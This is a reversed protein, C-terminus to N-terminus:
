IYYSVINFEKVDGMDELIADIADRVNELSEKENAGDAAVGQLEPCTAVIRGNEDQELFVRYTFGFNLSSSPTFEFSNIEADIVELVPFPVSQAGTVKPKFIQSM